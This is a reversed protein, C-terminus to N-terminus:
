REAERPVRPLSLRDSVSLSRRQKGREIAQRTENRLEYRGHRIRRFRGSSDRAHASLTRKVSSYSVAGGLLEQVAAHIDGVPLPEGALELAQTVAAV